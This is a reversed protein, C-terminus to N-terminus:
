ELDFSNLVKVGSEDRFYFTAEHDTWEDDYYWIICNWPRDGGCTTDKIKHPNGFMKVIEDSQMGSKIKMKNEDTMARSFSSCGTILSMVLLGLLLKM